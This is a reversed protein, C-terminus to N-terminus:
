KELGEDDVVDSDVEVIESVEDKRIVVWEGSGELKRAYKENRKKERTEKTAKLLKYAAVSVVTGTGIIALVKGVVGGSKETPELYVTQIDDTSEAAEAMTTVLEDIVTNEKSM